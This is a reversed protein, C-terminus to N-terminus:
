PKTPRRPRAVLDGGCNPCREGMSASCAACFTCEYSCIRADTADHPLSKSCRECCERMELSM